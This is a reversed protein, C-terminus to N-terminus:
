TQLRMVHSVRENRNIQLRMVHSVRENRNISMVEFQKIRCKLIEM